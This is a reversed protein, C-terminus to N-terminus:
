MEEIEVKTFNCTSQKSMLKTEVVSTRFPWIWFALCKNQYNQFYTKSRKQCFLLKQLNLSEYTINEMEKIDADTFNSTSQRSM